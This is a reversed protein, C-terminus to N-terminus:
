VLRMTVSIPTGVQIFDDLDHPVNIVIQEDLYDIYLTTENHSVNKRVLEGSGYWTNREGNAPEVQSEPQNALMDAIEGVFTNYMKSDIIENESYYDVVKKIIGKILITKDM